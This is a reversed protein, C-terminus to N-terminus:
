NATQQNDQDDLNPDVFFPEEQIVRLGLARLQEPTMSERDMLILQKNVEEKQRIYHTAVDRLKELVRDWTWGSLTKLQPMGVRWGIQAHTTDLTKKGAFEEPHAEAWGRVLETREQLLQDFHQLAPGTKDDIAQIAAERDLAVKNRNITLMRIEGLALDLDARTRLAPQTLKIRKM